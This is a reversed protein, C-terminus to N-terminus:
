GFGFVRWRLGGVPLRWDLAVEKLWALDCVGLVCVGLFWFSVFELWSGTNCMM